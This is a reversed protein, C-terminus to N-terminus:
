KALLDMALKSWCEMWATGEPVITKISRRLNGLTTQKTILSTEPPDVVCHIGVLRMPDFGPTRAVVCVLWGRAPMWIRCEVQSNFIVGICKANIPDTTRYFEM